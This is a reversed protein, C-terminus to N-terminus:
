AEKKRDIVSSEAIKRVKYVIEDITCKRENTDFLRCIQYVIDQYKIRAKKEVILNGVIETIAQDTNIGDQISDVSIGDICNQCHTHLLDEIIKKTIGADKEQYDPTM